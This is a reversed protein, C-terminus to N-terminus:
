ATESASAPSPNAQRSRASDGPPRPALSTTWIAIPSHDRMSERHPRRVVFLTLTRM